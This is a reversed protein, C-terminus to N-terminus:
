YITTQHQWLDAAYEIFRAASPLISGIAFLGSCAGARNGSWSRGIRRRPGRELADDICFLTAARPEPWIRSLIILLELLWCPGLWWRSAAMEDAASESGLVSAKTLAASTSLTSCASSRPAVPKALWQSDDDDDFM